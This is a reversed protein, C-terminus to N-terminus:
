ILDHVNQIHKFAVTANMDHQLYIFPLFTTHLNKKMSSVHKPKSITNDTHKGNKMQHANPRKKSEKKELRPIPSGDDSDYWSLVLSSHFLFSIEVQNVVVFVRVEFSLHCYCEYLAFINRKRRNFQLYQKCFTYLFTSSPWWWRRWWWWCCFESPTVFSHM